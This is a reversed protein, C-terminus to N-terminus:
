AECDLQLQHQTYVDINLKAKLFKYLNFKSRNNDLRTSVGHVYEDILNLKEAIKRKVLAQDIYFIKKSNEDIIYDAYPSLKQGTGICVPTITTLRIPYNKRMFHM